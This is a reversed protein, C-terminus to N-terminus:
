FCSTIIITFVIISISVIFIVAYVFLTYSGLLPYLLFCFFSCILLTRSIRTLLPVCKLALITGGLLVGQYISCPLETTCMIILSILFSLLYFMYFFFCQLITEKSADKNKMKLKSTKSKSNM